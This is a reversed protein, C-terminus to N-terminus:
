RQGVLRSSGASPEPVHHEKGRQRQEPATDDAAWDLGSSGGDRSVNPDGQGTLRALEVLLDRLAGRSFQEPAERAVPDRDRYSRSKDDDM